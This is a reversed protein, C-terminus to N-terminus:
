VIVKGQLFILPMDENGGTVQAAEERETFRPIRNMKLIDFCRLALDINGAILITGKLILIQKVYISSVIVRALPCPKRQEVVINM